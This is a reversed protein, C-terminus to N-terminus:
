GPSGLVEHCPTVAKEAQSIPLQPGPHGDVGYAVNLHPEPGGPCHSARSHNPDWGVRGARLCTSMSSSSTPSHFLVGATSGAPPPCCGAPVPGGAHDTLMHAEPHVVESRTPPSVARGLAPSSNGEQRRPVQAKPDPVLKPGTSRLTPGLSQGPVKAMAWFQQAARSPCPWHARAM